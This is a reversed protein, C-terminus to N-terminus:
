INEITRQEPQNFIKSSVKNNWSIMYLYRIHYIRMLEIGGEKMNKRLIINVGCNNLIYIGWRVSTRLGSLLFIIKNKM